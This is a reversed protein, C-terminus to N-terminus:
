LSLLRRQQAESLNSTRVAEAFTQRTKAEPKGDAKYFQASALPPGKLHTRVRDIGTGLLEAVRSLFGTSMTALEIQRDRLKSVFVASADLQQAFRRFRARDLSAFPNEVPPLAARARADASASAAQKVAYLRNQFRSMARSVAPSVKAPGSTAEAADVAPAPALRDMALEIALDTLAQAYAPYRRVYADLLDANVDQEEMSFAYLVDRQSLPSIPTM